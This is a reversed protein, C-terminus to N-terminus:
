EWLIGVETHERSVASDMKLEHHIENAGMRVTHKGFAYERSRSESLFGMNCGYCSSMVGLQRGSMRSPM